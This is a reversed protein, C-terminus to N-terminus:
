SLVCQSIRNEIPSNTTSSTRPVHYTADHDYTASREFHFTVSLYEESLQETFGYKDRVAPDAIHANTVVEVTIGEFKHFDIFPM